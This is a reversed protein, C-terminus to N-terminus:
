KIGLCLGANYSTYEAKNISAFLSLISVKLRLGADFCINDTKYLLAVPDTWVETATGTYVTGNITQKVTTNITYSGLMEVRTESSSHGIGCFLTLISLKKSLVLGYKTTTTKLQLLQNGDNPIVISINDGTLGAIASSLASEAKVESFCGFLSADFPLKKLVPIWEKFNHKVGLGFLGLKMQDGGNNFKLEPVFRVILDTHPLLGFGLQAMPVPVMDLGLGEPSNIKGIEEIQKGSGDTITVKVDMEAGTTKAGAITPSVSSGTNVKINSLGLSNVDFTKASGPIQIASVSVSLDFGFLKHTAASNYWGNNLGDGLAYAYPQLYAQSLKGADAKGGKLFAVVNTQSYGVQIILGVCILLTLKKM